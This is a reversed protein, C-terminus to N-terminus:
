REVPLKAANYAIMGGAMNIVNTFGMSMLIATARASRAGSRCVLIIESESDWRRAETEVTQLPVLNSGPIHGLEGVYEHPERVDVIRVKGILRATVEVTVEKVGANNVKSQEIASQM